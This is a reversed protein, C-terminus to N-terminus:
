VHMFMSVFHQSSMQRLMKTRRKQSLSVARKRGSSHIMNVRLIFAMAISGTWSSFHVNESGIEANRTRPKSQAVPATRAKFVREQITTSYGMPDM